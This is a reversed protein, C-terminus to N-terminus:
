PLYPGVLGVLAALTGVGGTIALWLQWPSVTKRQEVQRLRAEHDALDAAHTDLRGAHQTLAVDVKAELRIAWSPVADPILHEPPTM